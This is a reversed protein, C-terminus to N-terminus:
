TLCKAFEMWNIRGTGDLDYSKLIAQLENRGLYLKCNQLAKEFDSQNLFGSGEIDHNHFSEYLENIGNPKKRLTDKISNQIKKISFDLGVGFLSM